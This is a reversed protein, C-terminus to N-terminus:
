GRARILKEKNFVKEKPLDRALFGDDEFSVPVREVKIGKLNLVAQYDKVARKDRNESRPLTKLKKNFEIIDTDTHRLAIENSIERQPKYPFITQGYDRFALYFKIEDVGIGFILTTRAPSKGKSKGKYIFQLRGSPIFVANSLGWLFQGYSTGSDELVLLMARKFNFRVSFLKNLFAKAGSEGNGLTYPPNIFINQVRPWTKLLANGAQTFYYKDPANGMKCAMDSTAPDLDISGMVLRCREYVWQPTYWEFEGSGFPKGKALFDARTPIKFKSKQKKLREEFQDERLNSYAKKIQHKLDKYKRGKFHRDMVVSDQAIQYEAKCYLSSYKFALDFHGVLDLIKGIKHAQNGIKLKDEVTKALDLDQSMQDFHALDDVPNSSVPLKLNDLDM